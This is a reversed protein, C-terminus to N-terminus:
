YLVDNSFHSYSYDPIKRVKDRWNEATLEGEAFGTVAYYSESLHSDPRGNAGAVCQYRSLCVYVHVPTKVTEVKQVKKEFSYFAGECDCTFQLQRIVTIPGDPRGQRPKPPKREGPERYGAVPIGYTERLYAVLCDDDYYDPQSFRKVMPYDFKWSRVVRDEGDILEVFGATDDHGSVFREEALIYKATQPLANEAYRRNNIGTYPTKSLCIAKGHQIIETKQEADTKRNEMFALWADSYEQWNTDNIGEYRQGLGPFQEEAKSIMEAYSIKQAPKEFVEVATSAFSCGSHGIVNAWVEYPQGTTKDICIMHSNKDYESKLVIMIKANKMFDSYVQIDQQAKRKKAEELSVAQRMEELRKAVEKPVPKGDMFVLGRIAAADEPERGDRGTDQTYQYQQAAFRKQQEPPFTNWADQVTIQGPHDAMEVLLQTKEQNLQKIRQTNAEAGRSMPNAQIAGTLDDVDREIEQLRQQQPTPQPAAKHPVAHSESAGKLRLGLRVAMFSAAALALYLAFFGLQEGFSSTELGGFLAALACIASIVTLMGGIITLVWGFLRLVFRVLPHWSPGRGKKTDKANDNTRKLQKM